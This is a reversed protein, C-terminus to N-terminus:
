EPLWNLSIHPLYLVHSNGGIPTPVVTPSPTPTPRTGPTATVTPTGSPPPTGSAEGLSLRYDTTVCNDPSASGQNTIVAVVRQAGAPPVFAALRATAGPGATGALPVVRLGAGTDAAVSVRLEGNEATNAVEVSYAGTTPLGIYNIAFNDSIVGTYSVGPGELEGQNAIPTDQLRTAIADGDSFCYPSATPCQKTFRIAIAFAHYTDNFTTGKTRLANDYAPIARQGAAVNALFAQYVEEGGGARNLGGQREAAYRFMPWNAYKYDSPYQVLCASFSPWLYQYNDHGTPDVEDEAYSASSETWMANEEPDPDGGGFQIAHVYEHAMTNNLAKVALPVDGNTFSPINQNVVMCTAFAVTEEASTNPNDGIFGSYSGGDATVYGYLGLDGAPGSLDAVQVPYKGFTNATNFPPKPWGYNTIEVQYTAELAAVYQDITLGGQVGIYNLRFHASDRTTPGDPKDCITGGGQTVRELEAQLPPTFKATRGEAQAKLVAQIERVTATGYWGVRSHFQPPLAAYDYVAYALYLLREEASIAGRRYAQEILDPTALQATLPTAPAQAPVGSSRSAAATVATLVALVLILAGVSVLTRTRPSM